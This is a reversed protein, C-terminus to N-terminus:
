FDADVCSLVVKPALCTQNRAVDSNMENQLLTAFCNARKQAQKVRLTTKNGSFYAKWREM